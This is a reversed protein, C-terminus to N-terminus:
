LRLPLATVRGEVSVIIESTPLGAREMASLTAQVADATTVGLRVYGTTEDYDVSQTNPVSGLVLRSVHDKLAESGRGFAARERVDADIESGFISAVVPSAAPEAGLTFVVPRGGDVAVGGYAPVETAARLFGATLADPPAEDDPSAASCASLTLLAYFLAPCLLRM